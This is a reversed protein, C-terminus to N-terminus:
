ALVSPFFCLFYYPLLYPSLLLFLPLNCWCLVTMDDSKVREEWVLRSPLETHLVHARLSRTWAPEGTPNLTWM